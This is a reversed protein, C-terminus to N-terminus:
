NALRLRMCDVGEIPDPTIEFGLRRALGTMAVNEPLAIGVIEATGRQRCYDILTAMLLRGLGQRKLDSRVTLAFEGTINDPDAVVRAVALTEPEGGPMPRTVIFAMERDYDIQTFRALQSPPLRRVMTFMRMRVDEPDLANFFVVYAAGDEPRIPRVVVEQGQWVVTRELEKPYPRIALRGFRDAAPDVAVLRMRADIGLVGETDALLPNIDFEAVEPIDSVLQGAQVLVSCIADLNAPARNRYGALLRAVRTRGILDRALVSNLPPLALARDPNVEVAIGGQGFLIVPGFVPDLAAGVILEHAEARRVMAQVLFGQLRAQPKLEGIRRLMGQAMTRVAEMSELDLAVGGV